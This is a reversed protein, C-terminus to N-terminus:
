REVGETKPARLAALRAQEKEAALAFAVKPSSWSATMTMTDRFSWHTGDRWIGCDCWCCVDAGGMSPGHITPLGCIRCVVEGDSQDERTYRVPETM